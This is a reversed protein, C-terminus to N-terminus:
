SLTEVPGGDIPFFRVAGTEVTFGLMRLQNAVDLLGERDEFQFTGSCNTLSSISRDIITLDGAYTAPLRHGLVKPHLHPGDPLVWISKSVDRVYVYAGSALGVQAM